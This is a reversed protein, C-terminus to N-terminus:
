IKPIPLNRIVGPECYNSGGLRAMPKYTSLDIKGEKYIAENIHFLVIEGVVITSSGATGDGIEMQNYLKCEMHFASEKVRPPKVLQSALPNLGVREMENEGYPYTSGCSVLKEILWENASNVVFEGTEEINRLSDKKEGNPKRAISVMLCPPNSCVGNFFSFPALNGQGQKNLTSIFAIPRPLIAGILLKYISEVSTEKPNVQTYKESLM